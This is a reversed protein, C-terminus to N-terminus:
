GKAEEAAESVATLATDRGANYAAVILARIDSDSLAERGEDEPENDESYGQEDAYEEANAEDEVAETAQAVIADILEGFVDEIENLIDSRTKDM